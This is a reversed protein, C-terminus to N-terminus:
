ARRGRVAPKSIPKPLGSVTGSRLSGGGVSGNRGVGGVAAASVGGVPVRRAGVFGVASTGLGPVGLRTIGARNAKGGETDSGAGLRSSVIAASAIQQSMAAGPRRPGSGAMAPGPLSTAATRGPASSPPPAVSARRIVRRAPIPQSAGVADTGLASKGDAKTIREQGKRKVIRLASVQVPAEISPLQAFLSPLTFRTRSPYVPTCPPPPIFVPEAGLQSTTAAPYVDKTSAKEKPIVSLQHPNDDSIVKGELVDVKRILRKTM